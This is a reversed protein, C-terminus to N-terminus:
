IQPPVWERITDIFIKSDAILKIQKECSDLGKTNSAVFFLNFNDIVDKNGTDDKGFYAKMFTAIPPEDAYTMNFDYSDEFWTQITRDKYETNYDFNM